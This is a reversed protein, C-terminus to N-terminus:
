DEVGLGKSSGIVRELTEDFTLGFNLVQASGDVVRAALDGPQLEAVRRGFRDVFILKRSSRLILALECAIRQDRGDLLEVRAGPRLRQMEETKRAVAQERLVREAEARASAEAQRRAEAEQQAEERAREEAQRRALEAQRREREAADLASRAVEAARDLRLQELENRAHALDARWDLLCARMLPELVPGRDIPVLGKRALTQAAEPYDLRVVKIGSLNDFLLYGHDRHNEVLRTRMSRGQDIWWYWSGARLSAVEAFAPSHRPTRSEPAAAPPLTILQDQDPERGEMIALHVTDLRQLFVEFPQAQGAHVSAAGRRLREVLPNIKTRYDRKLAEGDLKTVSDLLDRITEVGERWAVSDVGNRLYTIHLYKAWVEDLFEVVARPLVRGAMADALTREVLQRAEGLSSRGQERAMLREQQPRMERWYRNLVDVLERATEGGGGLCMVGRVGDLALLRLEEAFALARRGAYADLGRLIRVLLELVQCATHTPSFLARGDRLWWAALAPQYSWLAQDALPDLGAVVGLRAFLHDNFRLLQAQEAGLVGGHEVGLRGAVIMALQPARVDAGSMARFPQSRLQDAIRQLVDQAKDLGVLPRLPVQEARLAEEVALLEALTRDLERWPSRVQPGSVGPALDPARLGQAGSEEGTGRM